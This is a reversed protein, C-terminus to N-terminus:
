APQRGYAFRAGRKSARRPRFADAILAGVSCIRARARASLGPREFLRTLYDDIVAPFPEPFSAHKAFSLATSVLVDAVGFRREVLYDRGELREAVADAAKFFRGRAKLAREPDAQGFIAAEILPPEETGRLVCFRGEGRPVGSPLGRHVADSCSSPGRRSDFGARRHAASLARSAM